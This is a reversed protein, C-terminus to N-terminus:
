SCCSCCRPPGPSHDAAASPCRFRACACAALACPARVVSSALHPLSSVRLCARSPLVRPLPLLRPVLPAISPAYTRWCPLSASRLSCTSRFLLAIFVAHASCGRCARQSGRARACGRRGRAGASLERLPGERADGSRGRLGVSVGIGVLERLSANARVAPLLVDRAFGETLCNNECNLTRLHTNAPLADFLPRLGTDGLDSDSVDLATLAPADAAVLAGLAAGAAPRDEAHIENIVHYSLDLTRLSGRGALAGLLSTAAGLEHWLQVSSLTLTTLTSCARLAHALVAPDPADDFLAEGDDGQIELEALAGGGLLRTLAPASAASLKCRILRLTHLRCALAADVLADLAASGDLAADWLFLERMFPCASIDAALELVEDAEIFDSLSLVALRLAVFPPEARLMARAVEVEPTYAAAHCARLGPAARLLAEVEAVPWGTRLQDSSRPMHLERLSARNARVVEMLADYTITDCDSCDLSELQGGARAVAAHLLGETAAARALGSAQSLDV